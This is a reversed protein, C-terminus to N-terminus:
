TEAGVQQGNHMFPWQRNGFFGVTAGIPYMITILIKPEVGFYTIVLYILYGLSNTAIGVLGYRILQRVSSQKEVAVFSNNM